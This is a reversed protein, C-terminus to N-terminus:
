EQIKLAFRIMEVVVAQKSEPIQRFLDIIVKEGDTPKPEETSLKQKQMPVDYGRLWTESCNLAKAFKNIIDSKPEYRGIVYNSIAGRSIGTMRALEAQKINRDRIIERLRQSTTSNKVKEEDTLNSEETFITEDWGMLYAPSTGLAKALPVIKDIGINIIAGNEWKRVTSKGVGVIAGVQELTMEKSLRLEKIKRSLTQELDDREKYQIHNKM